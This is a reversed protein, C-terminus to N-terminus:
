CRNASICECKFFLFYFCCIFQCCVFVNVSDRTERFNLYSVSSIRTKSKIIEPVVFSHNGIWNWVLCLIMKKPKFYKISPTGCKTQTKKIGYSALPIHLKSSADIESTINSWRSSCLRDVNTLIPSSVHKLLTILTDGVPTKHKPSVLLVLLARPKPTPKQFLTVVGKFVHYHLNLHVQTHCCRGTHPLSAPKTLAAM